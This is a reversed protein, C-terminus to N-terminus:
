PLTRYSRWMTEQRLDPSFFYREMFRRMPENEHEVFFMGNPYHGEAMLRRIAEAFLAVGRAMRQHRKFVYMTKFLVTRPELEELLMWGVPQGRYRLLLSRSPDVEADDEFPSLIDPYEYSAAELLLVRESPALNGWPAVVFEDPLRLSLWRQGQLSTFPGTRIHIGPQPSIFGCAQLFGATTLEGGTETMFEALLQAYGRSKLREAAAELLRRGIGQRRSGPRVMISRLHATGHDQSLEIVVAGQYGDGDSAGIALRRPPDPQDPQFLDAVGPLVLDPRGALEAVSLEVM